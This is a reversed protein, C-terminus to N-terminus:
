SENLHLRIAEIDLNRGILVLKTTHDDGPWKALKETQQIIHQVGHVVLPRHPDDSMAILGKMRLLDTGVNTKLWEVFQRFASRTIPEDRFIVHSFIDPDHRNTEWHNHSHHNHSHDHPKQHDELDLWALVDESRQQLNYSTPNLFLKRIDPWDTQRDLITAGMNMGSLLIKDQEIDHLTAPDHALDTKTLIIADALGIQRGAEKYKDLTLPGFIIDFLTILRSLTFCRSVIEETKGSSPALLPGIVPVPDILGTTEVIVRDFAKIQGKERKEWLDFLSLKIDSSANCCLCGTTTMVLEDSFDAVLDHDVQIDGFENLLVASRSFEPDRLIANLLTTKGSGLFGTIITVPIPEICNPDDKTM